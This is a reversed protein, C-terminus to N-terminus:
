NILATSTDLLLENSLNYLKLMEDRAQVAEALTKCSRTVPKGNVRICVQYNKRSERYTIYKMKDM